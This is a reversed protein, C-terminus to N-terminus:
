DTRSQNQGHDGGQENSYRIPYKYFPVGTMDGNAEHWCFLWINAIESITHSYHLSALGFAPSRDNFTRSSGGELYLQIVRQAYDQYIEDVQDMYGDLDKDKFLLSSYEYFVAVFRSRKLRVYKQYDTLFGSKGAKAFFHRWENKECVLRAIGGFQLTIDNISSLDALMLHLIDIECRLKSRIEVRTDPVEMQRYGRILWSERKEFISKLSVPM